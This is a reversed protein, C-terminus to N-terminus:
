SAPPQVELEDLASAIGAMIESRIEPLDALQRLITHMHAWQLRSGEDPPSEVADVTAQFEGELYLLRYYGKEAKLGAKGPPRRKPSRDDIARQFLITIRDVLWRQRGIAVAQQWRKELNPNTDM